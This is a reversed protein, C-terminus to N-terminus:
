RKTSIASELNAVEKGTVVDGWNSPRQLDSSDLKWSPISVARM